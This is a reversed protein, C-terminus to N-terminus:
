LGYLEEATLSAGSKVTATPTGPKKLGTIAFCYNTNAALQLMSSGGIDETTVTDPDDDLDDVITKQILTSGCYKVIVTAYRGGPAGVDVQGTWRISYMGRKTTRFRLQLVNRESTTLNFDAGLVAQGVVRGSFILLRGWAGDNYVYAVKDTGNYYMMGEVPNAPAATQPQLVVSNATVKKYTGQPSPYFTTMELTEARASAACALAMLAARLIM